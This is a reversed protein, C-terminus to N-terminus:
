RASIWVGFPKVSPKVSLRFARGSPGVSIRRLCRPEPMKLLCRWFERDSRAKRGQFERQEDRISPTELESLTSAPLTMAFVSPLWYKYWTREDFCIRAIVAQNWDVDESSVGYPFTKRFLHRTLPGCVHLIPVGLFFAKLSVSAESAGWGRLRTPWKIHQFIAPPMMYGPARLATIRSVRALPRAHLYAATFRGTEPAFRFTAGHIVRSVDDFGRVDPWVVANRAMAIEACRDLCGASFRQHGDIFALVAGKAVNAGANRSAAVGRRQDHRFVRVRVDEVHCCSDDTSGDDVVIIEVPERTAQRVSEVTSRLEDGENHATIIVSIL